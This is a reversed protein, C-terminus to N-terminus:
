CSVILDGQDDSGSDLCFVERRSLIVTGKRRVWWGDMWGEAELTCAPIFSQVWKELKMLNTSQHNKTLIIIIIIFDKTAITELFSLLYWCSFPSEVAYHLLVHVFARLCALPFCLSQSLALSSPSLPLFVLSFLLHECLFCRQLTSILLSPFHSICLSFLPSSLPEKLIAIVSDLLSPLLNFLPFSVSFTLLASFGLPFCADCICLCSSM